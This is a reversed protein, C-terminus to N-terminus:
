PQVVSDKDESICRVRRAFDDNVLIRVTKRCTQAKRESSVSAVVLRSVLAPSTPSFELGFQAIWHLQVAM